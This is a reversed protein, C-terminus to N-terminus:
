PSTRARPAYGTNEEADGVRNVYVGFESSGDVTSGAEVFAGSRQIVEHCVPNNYVIWVRRRRRELSAQINAIVQGMVVADFPNFLFFVNQDNEIAYDAADREIIELDNTIAARKRFSSVNSKAVACLEPSFEVGVIRQFRYQSALLLVKGKGCGLDVLVSDSPLSLSGILRRFASAHTPTYNVGRSKNDGSIKLADLVIRGATDTGHRLDFWRDDLKCAIGKLTTLVGRKALSKLLRRWADGFRKKPSRGNTEAGLLSTTEAVRRLPTAASHDAKKM